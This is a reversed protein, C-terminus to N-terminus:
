KGWRIAVWLDSMSNDDFRLTLPPHTTDTIAAPRPINSLQGALLNGLLPNKVITDTRNAADTITVQTKNSGM